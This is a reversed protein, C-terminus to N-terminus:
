RAASPAASPPSAALERGDVAITVDGVPVNGGAQGTAAQVIRLLGACCPVEMRLVTISRLSSAQIMQALKQVYAQGDDLKPCGIVVPRGSTLFRRHFDPHVVPVCDAVLLVDAEHLFPADPPVLHLQLPWNALRSQHGGARPDSDPSLRPAPTPGASLVNLQLSKAAAGPCSERAKELPAATRSAAVHAQAAQEDFPAADRQVITIAGRPCHGLCEGLGDCYTDSVLRAKGAVIQIAGEACSPVCQGCGDCKEEDIHVVKRVLM